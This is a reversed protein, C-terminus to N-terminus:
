SCFLTFKGKDVDFFQNYETQDRLFIALKSCYDQIKNDLFSNLSAIGFIYLCATITVTSNLELNVKINKLAYGTKIRHKLLTVLYQPTPKRPRIGKDYITLM